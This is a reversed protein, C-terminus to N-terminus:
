REPVKLHELLHENVLMYIILMILAGSGMGSVMCDQNLMVDEVFFAWVPCTFTGVISIFVSIRNRREIETM